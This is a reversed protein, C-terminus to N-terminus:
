TIVVVEDSVVLCVLINTEPLHVRHKLAWLATTHHVRIGEEINDFARARAAVPLCLEALVSLFPPLLEDVADLFPSLVAALLTVM